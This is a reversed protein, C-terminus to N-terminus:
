TLLKSFLDLYKKATYEIKFPNDRIREAISFYGVKLREVADLLNDKYEVGHEKAIEKTGGSDLYIIPLGCNIAELVANSCTDDQAFQLLCHCNKLMKALRKSNVPPYVRINKFKWGEPINGILDVTFDQSTDLIKDFEKYYNFGKKINSSWTSVVLKLKEKGNWYEKGKENFVDTDVGNYIVTYNTNDYSDHQFEKISYHSQFISHDIYPEFELQMKNYKRGWEGRQLSGVKRHIIPIGREKIKRLDEISADHSEYPGLWANIFAIDFNDNFNQTIKVGNKKFEKVLATLFQNGGGWPSKRFKHNLCIRM